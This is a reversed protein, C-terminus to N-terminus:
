RHKLSPELEDLKVRILGPLQEVALPPRPWRKRDAGLVQGELREDIRTEPVLLVRLCSDIGRLTEGRLHLCMHIPLPSCCDSVVHRVFFFRSEGRSECTRPLQPMNVANDRCI